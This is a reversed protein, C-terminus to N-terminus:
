ARAPGLLQDPAQLLEILRALMLAASAGDSLPSSNGPTIHWGIEPYRAAMDQDFFASRLGALSETTTNARVTQDVTHATTGGEEAPVEVPVIERDFDGNATADAALRHSRASFADLDDRTLGWRAAMLEAGYGQAPLGAPYRRELPGLPDGDGVNSFMPVRSMSEVGGAIVVDYAGAMVGHAAFHAAQQSSGCQRDITVGPVQEPLGSVLAATRAINMTQDGVQSVCGALVDEVLEPDIGTRDLLARITTALLDAPHVGSLAGGPKGRGSATRVIDVIVASGM